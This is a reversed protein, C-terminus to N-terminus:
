INPQSLLEMRQQQLEDGLAEAEEPTTLVYPIIMIM